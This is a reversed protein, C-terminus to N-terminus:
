FEKLKRWRMTLDVPTIRESGMSNPNVEAWLGTVSQIQWGKQVKEGLKPTFYEWADSTNMWDSNAM